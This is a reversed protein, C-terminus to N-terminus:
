SFLIEAYFYSISLQEEKTVAGTMVVLDFLAQYNALSVKTKMFIGLMVIEDLDLLKLFMSSDYNAALTKASLSAQITKLEETSKM